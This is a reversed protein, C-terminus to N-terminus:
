FTFLVSVAAFGLRAVRGVFLENKKSFGGTNGSRLLWLYMGDEVKLMVQLFLGFFHHGIKYSRKFYGMLLGPTLCLDCM